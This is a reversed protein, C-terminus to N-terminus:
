SVGTSSIHMQHFLPLRFPKIIEEEGANEIEERKEYCMSIWKPLLVPVHKMKEFHHRVYQVVKSYWNLAVIHTTQKSHLEGKKVVIGGMRRIMQYIKKYDKELGSITIRLGRMCLSEIPHLYYPIDSPKSPAIKMLAFASMLQIRKDDKLKYFSEGDFSDIVIVPSSKGELESDSIIEDIQQDYVWTPRFTKEPISAFADKLRTSPRDNNLFYIPLREMTKKRDCM